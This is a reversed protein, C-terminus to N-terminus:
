VAGLEDNLDDTIELMFVETPKVFNADAVHLPDIDIKMSAKPKEGFQLRGDKLTKHVLDKFLICQSTNHGLFTHYKCFGRKRKQELPPNKLGSPVVIQGDSVGAAMEVLEHEPVRTFCRAKLLRFKNLYDDISESSKRKVLSLEKLSINSQGMYFQKHFVRELQEWTRISNPALMTFWTFANKTLSSPFYRVKVGEDNDIDGGETEYKAVHEVTSENM